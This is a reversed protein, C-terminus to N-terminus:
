ETGVDETSTTPVNRRRSPKVDGPVYIRPIDEQKPRFSLIKTSEGKAHKNWAKIFFGLHNQASRIVGNTPSSMVRRLALRPDTAGLDIGSKLGELFDLVLADNRGFLQWLKYIGVAAGNGNIRYAHWHMQSENTALHIAQGISIGEDLYNQQLYTAVEANSVKDNFPRRPYEDFILLLRAVTGVRNFNALGLHSAIDGFTRRLGNDIANFNEKPMGVSIQMEVPIGAEHVATLRHQGDQLVGTDDIAVGQHTYRFEGREIVNRWLEVEPRRIPRNTTNLDLIKGALEPTVLVREFTKPFPAPTLLVIEPVRTQGAARALADAHQQANDLRRRNEEQAELLRQQRNEESLRSFEAEADAWGHRNLEQMIHDDANVDSPTLHIQVKFGDPCQIIWGGDKHNTVPWAMKRAREALKRGFDRRTAM